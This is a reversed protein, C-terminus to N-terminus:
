FILVSGPIESDYIAIDNDSYRGPYVDLHLTQSNPKVVKGRLAIASQNNWYLVSLGHDTNRLRFKFRRHQKPELTIQNTYSPIEVQVTQNTRNRVQLTITKEPKLSKGTKVLKPGAIATSFIVLPTMVLATGLLLHHLLKPM